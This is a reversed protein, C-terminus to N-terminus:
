KTPVSPAAGNQRLHDEIGALRTKVKVMDGKLTGIDGKLTGVDTEVRGVRLDLADITGGLERGMDEVRERLGEQGEAIANVKSNIPELLVEFRAREETTM